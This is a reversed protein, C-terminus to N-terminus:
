GELIELLELRAVGAAGVLSGGEEERGRLNVHPEGLPQEVVQGGVSRRGEGGAEWGEGEGQGSAGGGGARGRGGRGM